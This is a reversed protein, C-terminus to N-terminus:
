IKNKGNVSTQLNYYLDMAKAIGDTEWVKLVQYIPNEISILLDFRSKLKLYLEDEGGKVMKLYNLKGALVKAIDPKGNKIHVKESVYKKVFFESAREYGYREWYYLWMRIEKIYQKSVNVKENVILGTVEQTYGRKQLRTKSLKITYGQESIIRHIEKLFESDPQYVNHMSSFTLDDAYRSYRLGFRNAVATLLYDLRQCVINSIVPSTPAGQPLVNRKVREWKNEQNKRAVEMEVCCIAAIMSALKLRGSHNEKKSPTGTAKLILGTGDSNVRIQIPQIIENKSNSIKHKSFAIATKPKNQDICGPKDISQDSRSTALDIENNIVTHFSKIKNLTLNYPKLQLTKWVRAQDISPFFDKLDINYIYNSRIHIKANDVVSKNWVFGTVAKHPEYVAQIIFALTQQLAKLGKVPASISREEGSKKKIKFETYRKGGLNPNSYWTLQKLKFPVAEIGFLLPKVENLLQLLDEKSQMNAFDRRIKNITHQDTKM